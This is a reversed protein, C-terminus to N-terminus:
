TPKTPQAWKQNIPTKALQTKQDNGFFNTTHLFRTMNATNDKKLWRTKCLLFRGVFRATSPPSEAANELM